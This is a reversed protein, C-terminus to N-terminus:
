RSHGECWHSLRCTPLPNRPQPPLSPPLPPARAPASVRGPCGTPSSSARGPWGGVGVGVGPFTYAPRARRHARCPAASMGPPLMPRGPPTPNPWPLTRRCRASCPSPPCPLSPLPPPLVGDGPQRRTPHHTGHPACPLAAHQGATHPRANTNNVIVPVSSSGASAAQPLCFCSTCRRGGTATRNGHAGREGACRHRPSRRAAVQEGRATKDKRGCSPVGSHSAASQSTFFSSHTTDAQTRCRHSADSVQTHTNPPPPHSPTPAGDAINPQQCCVPSRGM